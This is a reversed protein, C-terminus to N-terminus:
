QASVIAQGPSVISISGGYGCVLKSDAGLCSGGGVNVKPCTAAWTGAPVPTCPQPTLTGMAAATAASVAPNSKSVCMAFPGVNSMAACDNVSAVPQGQITVTQQSTVKLPASATGMTCVCQAGMCVAQAM